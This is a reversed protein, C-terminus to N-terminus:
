AQRLRERRSLVETVGVELAHILAIAQKEPAISRLYAVIAPREISLEHIQMADAVVQVNPLPAAAIPMVDEYHTPTSVASVEREVVGDALGTGILILAFDACM